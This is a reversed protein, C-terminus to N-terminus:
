EVISQLIRLFRQWISKNTAIGMGNKRNRAVHKESTTFFCLADPKKSLSAYWHAQVATPTRPTGADTLYESVLMFSRHLNQPNAKVHRLLVQDEEDSWRRSKKDTM